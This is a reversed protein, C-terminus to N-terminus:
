AASHGQAPAGQTRPEPVTDEFSKGSADKPPPIFLKAECALCHYFRRSKLVRMWGSRRIRRYHEVPCDCATLKM